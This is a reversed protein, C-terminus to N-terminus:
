SNELATLRTDVDHMWSVLDESSTDDHYAGVDAQYFLLKWDKAIDLAMPETATKGVAMGKGGALYDLLIGSTSLRMTALIGYPYFNDTLELAVDM